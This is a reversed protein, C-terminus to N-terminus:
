FATSHHYFVACATRHPRGQGCTPVSRHLLLGRSLADSDRGNGCRHFDHGLDVTGHKALREAVCRASFPYRECEASASPTRGM